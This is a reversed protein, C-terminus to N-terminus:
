LRRLQATAPLPAAVDCSEEEKDGGETATPMEATTTSQHGNMTQSKHMVLLLGNQPSLSSQGCISIIFFKYQVLFLPWLTWFIKWFLTAGMTIFSNQSLNTTAVATSNWWNRSYTLTFVVRYINLIFSLMINTYCLLESLCPTPPHPPCHVTKWLILFIVGTVKPCCFACRHSYMTLSAIPMSLSCLIVKKM